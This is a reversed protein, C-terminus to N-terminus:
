GLGVFAHVYGFQPGESKETPEDDRTDEFFSQVLFNSKLRSKDQFLENGLDVFDQRLELEMLNELPAGDYVLRRIDQSFGCGLNLFLSGARAQKLIMQYFPSHYIDFHLFM